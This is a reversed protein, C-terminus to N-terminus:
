WIAMVILALVYIGVICATAIWDLVGLVRVLKDEKALKRGVFFAAFGLFALIFVVATATRLLSSDTDRNILVLASIASVIPVIEVIIATTRKTM